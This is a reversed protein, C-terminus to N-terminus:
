GRRFHDRILDYATADFGAHRVAISVVRTLPEDAAPTVRLGYRKFVDVITKVLYKDGYTTPQGPTTQLHAYAGSVLLRWNHLDRALLERDPKNLRQLTATVALRDLTAQRLGNVRTQVDQLAADLAELERVVEAAPIHFNEQVERAETVADELERLFRPEGCIAVLEAREARM